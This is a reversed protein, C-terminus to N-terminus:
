YPMFSSEVEDVHPFPTSCIYKSTDLENYYMVNSIESSPTMMCHPKSTNRSRKLKERLTYALLYSPIYKKDM